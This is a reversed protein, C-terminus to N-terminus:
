LTLFAKRALLYKKNQLFWHVAILNLDKNRPAFNLAKIVREHAYHSIGTEIVKKFAEIHLPDSYWLM